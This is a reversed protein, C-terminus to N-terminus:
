GKWNKCDSNKKDNKYSDRNIEWDYLELKTGLMIIMFNWSLRSVVGAVKEAIDKFKILLPFLEQFDFKM